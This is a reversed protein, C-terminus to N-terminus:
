CSCASRVLLMASVPTWNLCAFYIAFFVTFWSILLVKYQVVALSIFLFPTAILMSASCVLAEAKRTYKNLLKSLESGTVTGLIGAAVTLGGFVIAARFLTLYVAIM